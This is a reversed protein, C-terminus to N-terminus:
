EVKDFIGQKSMTIIFREVTDALRLAIEAFMDGNARTADTNIEEDVKIQAADKLNDGRIARKRLEPRFYSYLSSLAKKDEIPDNIAYIIWDFNERLDNEYYSMSERQHKWKWAPDLSCTRDGMVVCNGKKFVLWGIGQPNLIEDDLARDGTPLKICNSLIVDIGAAAKHYGEYNNAMLAERGHIGGTAPILKLGSKTPHTVYIHSPFTVVTFDNRGLTNNIYDVASDEDVVNSPIEYRFQYNRGEAYEAGAKQVATSTVGPIAIKVLGKGQDELTNIVCTDPDLANLYDNDTIGAVGDYGGALQTAGQVRYFKGVASVATMDSGAKVTIKDITNSIIKFRTTPNDAVNPYVFSGVLGNVAMPCVYIKFEDGVIFATGGAAITFGITFDNPNAFPTGVTATGLAGLVSSTVSFETPSTAVLTLMEAQVSGGYVFTGVSGDGTNGVKPVVTQPEITLETAALASVAGYRNAPRVDDTIAGTWQDEVEIFDNNGDDNILGVFYYESDPDMSLNEYNLMLAGDVYVEMGFYSSSILGDKILVGVYKGANTMELSWGEDTGTGYDTAMDQDGTVTVVGAETNSVVTYSKGPLEAFRLTAGKYEDELMTKGTDFTTATLGGGGFAIDYLFAKKGAWRGGNHAKIKMVEPANCGDRRCRLSVESQRESGDTIRLMFLEGRGRGLRYYDFAVDPVLSDDIYSGAKRLFDTKSGCRFLKNVPGRELVGIYTTPGLAGKEIPKESDKEILGTGAGRIPGYRRQVM